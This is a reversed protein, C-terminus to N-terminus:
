SRAQGLWISVTRPLCTAPRTTVCAKMPVLWVGATPSQLIVVYANFGRVSATARLPPVRRLWVGVGKPIAAIADTYIMGTLSPTRVRRILSPAAKVSSKPVRVILRFTTGELVYGSTPRQASVRYEGLLVGLPAPPFHAIAVRQHAARLLSVASGLESGSLNPVRFTPRTRVPRDSCILGVAWCGQVWNGVSIVAAIIALVGVVMSFWTIALAGVDRKRGAAVGAGVVAGICSLLM